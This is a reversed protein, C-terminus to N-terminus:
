ELEADCGVEALLARLQPVESCWIREADADRAANRGAGITEFAVVRMQFREGDAASGVEVGYSRAMPKRVVVRGSEALATAMQERVEYGLTALARLVAHRTALATQRRQEEDAVLKAQALLRESDNPLKSEALAAAIRTELARASESGIRQLQMRAATLLRR